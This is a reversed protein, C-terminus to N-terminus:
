LHLGSRFSFIMQTINHTFYLDFHLFLFQIVLCKHKLPYDIVFNRLFISILKGFRKQGIQLYAGNNLATDIM